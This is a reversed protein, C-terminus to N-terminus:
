SLSQRGGSRRGSFAARQRAARDAITSLTADAAPDSLHRALSRVTPYQFLDSLPLNIHLEEAVRQQVQVILLSSGGVDFFNQDREVAAV